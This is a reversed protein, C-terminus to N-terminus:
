LGAGLLVMCVLIAGFCTMEVTTAARLRAAVGSRVRVGEWIPGVLRDHWRAGWVTLFLAIVLATLWTLGYATGLLADLSKIPGLVTGRVIGLLMVLSGSAAMLPGIYKELAALTARAEAAPRRLSAPWLAFDILVYGGFWIVGSLIHLWQVLLTLALSM